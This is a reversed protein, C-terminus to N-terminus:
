NLMTQWKHLPWIAWATNMSTVHEAVKPGKWGSTCRGKHLVTKKM